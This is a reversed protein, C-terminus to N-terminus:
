AVAGHFAATDGKAAWGSCGERDACTLSTKQPLVADHYLFHGAFTDARVEPCPRELIM